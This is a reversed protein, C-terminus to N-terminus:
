KGIGAGKSFSRASRKRKAGPKCESRKHAAKLM